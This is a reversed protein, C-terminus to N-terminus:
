LQLKITHTLFRAITQVKLNCQATGQLLLNRM